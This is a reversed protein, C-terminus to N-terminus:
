SASVSLRAWCNQLAALGLTDSENEGSGDVWDEVDVADEVVEEADEEEDVAEDDPDV